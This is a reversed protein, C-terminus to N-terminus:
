FVYTANFYNFYCLKLHLPLHQAIPVTCPQCRQRSTVNQLCPMLGLPVFTIKWQRPSYHFSMDRNPLPVDATRKGRSIQLEAYIKYQLKQLCTICMMQLAFFASRTTHICEIVHLSCCKGPGMKIAPGTEVAVTSFSKSCKLQIKTSPV